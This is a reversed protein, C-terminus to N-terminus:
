PNSRGVAECIAKADAADAKNRKVHPEDRDLGNGLLHHQRRV